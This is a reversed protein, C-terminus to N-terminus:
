WGFKEACIPGIGRLRWESRLEANCVCCVGTEVGYAKAAQAPDAVFKLVNAEQEPSCERSAFFKGDVIKGLYTEGDKAYLAGPNKSNAGAPSIVINGITIKPRKITLGKAKAAAYAQAKEFSAKLRDIGAADVVKANAIRAAAAEIAAERKAIGRLVAGKQNETLSGFKLVSDRLSAAFSNSGNEDIWAAIVPESAKFDEWRTAIAAVKREVRAVRAKARAEPASKFVLKGTGKCTFCNGVTRGSWSTFRGSGGCKKCPESFARELVPVFDAPASRPAVREPAKGSFIDNLPDDHFEKTM